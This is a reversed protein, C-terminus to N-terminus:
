RVRVIKTATRAELAAVVRALDDASVRLPIFASKTRVTIWDPTGKLFSFKGGAKAVAVTTGSATVWRPERSHSHFLGIVDHYAASHLTQTGDVVLLGDSELRLSAGRDDVKGDSSVLLKLNAFTVIPVSARAAPAETAPAATPPPAEPPPVAESPKPTPTTSRAAAKPGPAAIPAAATPAPAPNAAAPIAATPGVAPTTAPAPAAPASVSRVTEPEPARGNARWVVIAIAAVGALLLLGAAAVPVRRSSLAPKPAASAPELQAPVAAPPPPPVIPAEATVPRAIPTLMSPLQDSTFEVTEPLPPEVAQLQVPPPQAMFLPTPTQLRTIDLDPSQDVAPMPRTATVDATGFGPLAALADRFEEATQYRDGPAKSMARTLIDQCVAPLDARFQRVPTPPDYIQKQVMAVASDAKFPLHATLLRYFVVGIAYLDTRGDITGSLAQEPAMYAPTGVMFGDLTLHETGVMRAIGFDMVKVLGSETLMLNAPKLDRHVIGARHAFALADLVQACLRAARDVPLPGTRASVKDFTEGRVYEMVMLLDGAHETLEFLTAINPHNLRALTIAEARFRKLIDPETLDANLCKIAVERELTQDVAKYVTGMGGRGLRSVVRYKGVTQGVM